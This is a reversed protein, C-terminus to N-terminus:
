CRTEHGALQVVDVEWFRALFLAAALIMLARLGREVYVTTLSASSRRASTTTPRGCFLLGLPEHVSFAVPLVLAVIAIAFLGGCRRAGM